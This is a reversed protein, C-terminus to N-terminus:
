EKVTYEDTVAQWHTLIRHHVCYRPSVPMREVVTAQLAVNARAEAPQAIALAPETEYACATVIFDYQSSVSSGATEADIRDLLLREIM